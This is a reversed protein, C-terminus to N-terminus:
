VVITSESVAVKDEVFMFSGDVPFFKHAISARVKAGELGYQGVRKDTDSLRKQQDPAGRRQNNEDLVYGDNDLRAGNKHQEEFLTVLQDVRSKLAALETTKTVPHANSAGSTLDSSLEEGLRGKLDDRLRLLANYQDETHFPPPGVYFWRAAADYGWRKDEETDINSNALFACDLDFVGVDVNLRGIQTASMNVLEGPDVDRGDLRFSMHMNNGHGDPNSIVAHMLQIKQCAMQFNPNDHLATFIRECETTKDKPVTTEASANHSTVASEIKTRIGTSSDGRVIPTALFLRGEHVVYRAEGAVNLGLAASLKHAANQRGFIGVQQRSHGLDFSHAGSASRSDLPKLAYEVADERSAGLRAKFVVNYTGEGLPEVDHIQAPDTVADLLAPSLSEGGRMAELAVGVKLSGNGLFAALADPGNKDEYTNLLEQLRSARDKADVMQEEISAPKFGTEKPAPVIMPADLADSINLQEKVQEPPSINGNTINNILNKKHESFAVDAKSVEAFAAHINKETEVLDKELSILNKFLEDRANRDLPIAKAREAHVAVLQKEFTAVAKDLADLANARIELRKEVNGLQTVRQEAMFKAAGITPNDRTLKADGVASKVMLYLAKTNSKASSVAKRLTGLAQKDFRKIPTPFAPGRKRFQPKKALELTPVPPRVTEVTESSKYSEVTASAGMSFTSPPVSTLGKISGTM